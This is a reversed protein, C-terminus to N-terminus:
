IWKERRYFELTNELGKPLDVKPKWNLDHHLKEYGCVWRQLFMEKLKNLTLVQAQRSLAAWTQSSAAALTFLTKPIKLYYPRIELAQAVAKSLSRWTHVQGDDLCYVGKPPRPAEVMTVVAQAVDPGYCLSLERSGEQLLPVIGKKIARFLALLETDYPGYLVPPRLISVPIRPTLTELALEGQRKSEGYYTLARCQAAPLCFDSNIEPNNVAITSIHVFRKPLVKMKLIEEALYATGERNAHLFDQKTLAKVVGAVHIVAEVGQLTEQLSAAQPLAGLVVQAGMAELRKARELKRALAVVQHGRKILQKAVHHGLFGTGGTLFLRM